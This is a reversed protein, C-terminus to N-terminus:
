EASFGGSRFAVKGNQERGPGPIQDQEILSVRRSAGILYLTLEVARGQQESQKALQLRGTLRTIDHDEGCRRHLRM